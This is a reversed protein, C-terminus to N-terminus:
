TGRYKECPSYFHDRWDVWIESYRLHPVNELLNFAGVTTGRNRVRCIWSAFYTARSSLVSFNLLLFIRLARFARAKGAPHLSSFLRPSIVRCRRGDNPRVVESATGVM